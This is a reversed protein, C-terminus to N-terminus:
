RAGRIPLVSLAGLLAFVAAAIFLSEYNKQGSAGIALLAPALAPAISQPMASALNFIGLDKAADTDRNPLVETVLALDIALYVGQGLGCIAIGIFFAELSSATGVFALGISYIIASGMVFPKRRDLRDSLVGAVLSGAITTLTAIVTADLMTKPIASGEVNLKDMLFYVQNNMLTALGIFLLFRSAFAFAFDPAKRPDIWFSRLAAAPALRQLSAQAPTLRRDKLVLCFGAVSLVTVVAPWVFVGLSQGGVNQAIWVGLVIAVQITLGVIGGVMGRQHAPVQDPLVAILASLVANFGAQTLCWGVVFAPFSDLSIMVSGLAGLVAGGVLWPRRMGWRSATRDSLLGAVPNALMAVLAGLGLVWALDAEKNDPSLAAIKLAITMIAPTLLGIWLGLFAVTYACIFGWGVSAEQPAPVAIASTNTTNLTNM